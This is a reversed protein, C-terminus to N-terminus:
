GIGMGPNGPDVGGCRQGHRAHELHHGALVQERRVERRQWAAPRQSRAVAAPDLDANAVREGCIGRTIDALRHRQHNGVGTLKGAISGFRHHDVVLFQRDDDVHLGRKAGTRRLKMGLSGAVAGEVPLQTVFSRGLRGKGPGRVRDRELQAVVPQDGVRHLRARDVDGPIGEVLAHRDVDGVLIRDPHPHQKHRHEPQGGFVLQPHYRGVDAPAETGFAPNILLFHCDGERRLLDVARDFPGGIAGLCEQGVIVAAVVDGGGFEGHVWVAAEEGGLDVRERVHAAIDRRRVRNHRGVHIGGHQRALIRDRRDMGPDFPDVGVGARDIGIAARAAGLSGKDDFPQGIEGRALQPQILSFDPTAVEDPLEGVLGRQDVFVVAAIVLRAEIRRQFETVVGSESPALGSGGGFPQDAPDANGGIDLGTPDTGRPEQGAQAAASVHPFRALHPYVRDPRDIYHGARVVM